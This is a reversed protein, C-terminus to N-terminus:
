PQPENITLGGPRQRQARRDLERVGPLVIASSTAAAAIAGGIIVTLRVGAAAAAAGGAIAGLPSLALSLLWDVSSVRGLLEPPVEEQMLPFWLVNGYTVAFWMAGVFFTAMWAWPSLGVFVAAVGAGAWSTLITVVRRRPAGRRKVYISALAGGAGNAAYMVGLLVAGAKFVHRVLLPQLVTGLPVFSVLNAIGVAIFSWWLWPQSRSYRLGEGIGAIVASQSGRAQTINRMAALCCGSIIFSVGDVAFAWASGFTAVTLGGVLPGALYQGLSQSLSTLSSGSVLLESPLIDRAIATSAPMFFASAVGFIIALVIFEWLRAKNLAVLIALISVSAGSAADSVLMVLRRSLRDVLSGGVLLLAVTPILRASVVLSLDLPSGSIQLVELPLAITFIGNGAVSIAQGSWLLAFNRNRLASPSRAKPDRGTSL